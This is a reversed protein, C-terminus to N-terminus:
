SKCIKMLIKLARQFIIEPENMSLSRDKENLQLSM